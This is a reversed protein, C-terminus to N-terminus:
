ENNYYFSRNLKDLWGMVAISGTHDIYLGNINPERLITEFQDFSETKLLGYGPIAVYYCSGFKHVYSQMSGTNFTVSGSFVLKYTKGYDISKHIGANGQTFVIIEDKDTVFFSYPYNPTTLKIWSVGDDESRMVSQGEGTPSVLSMLLGTKLRFIGNVFDDNPNTWTMGGDKSHWLGREYVTAWLDNDNTIWFYFYYPRDPIPNTCKIWNVGHDISKYLEGYWTGIYVVGNKDIEIERAGNLKSENLPQWDMFNVGRKYVQSVSIMWSFHNVTDTALDSLQSLPPFYVENWANHLIGSASFQMESLFKGDPSYIKAITSQNFTQTGLKWRTAAKGDDGTLVIQNDLSGGGSVVEFDVKFGKASFPSKQNQIQVYISDKLYEGGNATGNVYSKTFSYSELTELTPDPYTNCSFSIIWLVIFFILRAFEKGFLNLFGSFNFKQYIRKFSQM